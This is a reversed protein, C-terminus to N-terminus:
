GRQLIMFLYGTYVALLVGSQLRNIKGRATQSFIWILASLGAFVVLDIVLQTAYEVPKVLCSTGLVLYLNFINSGVVNGVAIDNKGKRAAVVSTVLEPLSTGLAVLTLGILAQSVGFHEAFLVANDVVLQGGLVLSVLGAVSMVSARTVSVKETLTTEAEIKGTQRALQAVGRLFWAFGALLGFGGLRSLVYDGGHASSFLWVLLAGLLCLPIEKRLLSPSVRLPVIVGALGLILGTNIINSGIINGFVIGSAGQLSSVVNVFLEPASTGFAVVTLGVVLESVGMRRALASSGEVLWDAGKVVLAFGLCFLLFALVLSM